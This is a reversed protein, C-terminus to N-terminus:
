SAALWALARREVPGTVGSPFAAELRLAMRWPNVALVPMSALSSGSSYRCCQWTEEVAEGMAVFDLTRDDLVDGVDFPLEFADGGDFRGDEIGAVDASQRRNGHIGAAQPAIDVDPHGGQAPQL